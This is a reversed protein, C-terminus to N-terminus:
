ERAQISSSSSRSRVGVYIEGHMCGCLGLDEENQILPRRESKKARRGGFLNGKKNGVDCLEEMTVPLLLHESEEKEERNNLHYNNDCSGSDSDSHM